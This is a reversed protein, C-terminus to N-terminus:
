LKFVLKVFFIYIYKYVLTVTDITNKTTINRKWKIKTIKHEHKLNFVKNKDM